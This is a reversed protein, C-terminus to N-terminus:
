LRGWVRNRLPGFAFGEGRNRMTEAPKMATERPKAKERFRGFVSVTQATESPRFGIFDATEGRNRGRALLYFGALFTSKMRIESRFFVQKFFRM